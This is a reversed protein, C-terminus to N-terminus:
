AWGKMAGILISVFFSYIPRRTSIRENIYPSVRFEEHYIRENRRYPISVQFIKRLEHGILFQFPIDATRDGKM